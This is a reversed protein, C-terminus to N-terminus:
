IKILATETNHFKRYASQNRELLNNNILHQNMQAAVAKEILKSVFSLNSVPRYNKLENRNLSPKKILPSILAHKLCKPM